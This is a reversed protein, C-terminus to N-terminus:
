ILIGHNNLGICYLNNSVTLFVSHSFGTSIKSITEDNVNMRKCSKYFDGIKM